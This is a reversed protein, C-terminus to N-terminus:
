ELNNLIAAQTAYADCHRRFEDRNLLKTVYVEAFVPTALQRWTGHFVIEPADEGAAPKGDPGTVTVKPAQDYGYAAGSATWGLMVWVKTKQRQLDFFVPVMMRSDRALDPDSALSAVWRLFHVAQQDASGAAPDEALGLDRCAVVHAGLFLREISALEEDLNPKVPGAATLRHMAALNAKGFTEELVGRVYAYSQARRLYMAPLIEVHPNPAIFVKEREKVPPRDGVDSAPEPFALQKVHTERTLAFTGKFLEELHKKYEDNPHLRSGEPAAELRILPDLSWLQHDYWGSDAQPQLSLDGSKVRAIVENMLNFGEPIPKDGYLRMVLDTEPGRSPPFFSVPQRPSLGLPKGDAAAPLLERYGATKLPNTLRENLHLVQEYSKRADVDAALTTAVAAIGAGHEGSRLPSQLLRDQQFINQLDKNWPYFGLPKSRKEDALFAARESAVTRKLSGPVVADGGGLESAAFLQALPVGGQEANVKAALRALWARKGTVPGLGDQMALEVAAYLGDDFQKAKQVLVAASAFQGDSMGALTKQPPGEEGYPKLDAKKVWGRLVKGGAIISAQAWEDKVETIFLIRGKKLKALVTRDQQLATGDRTVEVTQQPEIQRSIWIEKKPSSVNLIQKSLDLQVTYGSKTKITPAAPPAQIKALVEEAPPPALQEEKATPEPREVPVSWAPTLVCLTLLVCIGLAASFIRQM